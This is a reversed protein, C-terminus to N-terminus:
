TRYVREFSGGLLQPMGCLEDALGLLELGYPSRSLDYDSNDDQERNEYAVSVGDVSASAVKGGYGAAGKLIQQKLFIKHATYLYIAHDLMCGFQKLTWFHKAYKISLPLYYEALPLLEATNFESFGALFDQMNATIIVAM